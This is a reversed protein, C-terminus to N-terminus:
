TTYNRFFLQGPANHNQLQWLTKRKNGLSAKKICNLDQPIMWLNDVFFAENQSSNLSKHFDKKLLTSLWFARTLAPAGVALDAHVM